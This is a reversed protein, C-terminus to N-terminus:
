LHKIREIEKKNIAWETYSALFVNTIIGKRTFAMM